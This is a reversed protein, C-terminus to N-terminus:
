VKSMSINPFIRGCWQFSRRLILLSALNTASVDQSQSSIAGCHQFSKVSTQITPHPCSQAGVMCVDTFHTLHSFKCVNKHHPHPALNHGWWVFTQLIERIQPATDKYAKLLDSLFKSIKSIKLREKSHHPRIKGLKDPM